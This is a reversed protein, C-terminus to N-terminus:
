VILILVCMTYMTLPMQVQVDSQQLNSDPRAQGSGESLQDMDLMGGANASLLECSRRCLPKQAVKVKFASHFYM